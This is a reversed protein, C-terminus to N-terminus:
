PLSWPISSSSILGLSRLENILSYILYGLFLKLINQISSTSHADRFQPDFSQTMYFCAKEMDIENIDRTNFYSNSNRKILRYIRSNDNIYDLSIRYSDSRRTSLRSSYNLKENIFEALALFYESNSSRRYLMSISDRYLSHNEPTDLSM